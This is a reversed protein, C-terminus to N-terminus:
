SIQALRAEVDALAAELARRRAPNSTRLSLIRERQLRLDQIQRARKAHEAPNKGNAHPDEVMNAKREVSQQEEVSKSEWGRAMSKDYTVQHDTQTAELM